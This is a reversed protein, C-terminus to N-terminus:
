PPSFRWCFFFLFSGGGSVDRLQLDWPQLILEVYTKLNTTEPSGREFEEPSRRSCLQTRSPQHYWMCSWSTRSFRQTRDRQSWLSLWRGQGSTQWGTGGTGCRWCWALWSSATSQRAPQGGRNEGVFSQTGASFEGGWAQIHVTCWEQSNQSM